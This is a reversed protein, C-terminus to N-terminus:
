LDLQTLTMIILFFFILVPESNYNGFVNSKFALESEVSPHVFFNHFFTVTVLAAARRFSSCYAEHRLFLSCCVASGRSQMVPETLPLMRLDPAPWTARVDPGNARLWQLSEGCWQSGTSIIDDPGTLASPRRAWQRSLIALWPWVKSRVQWSQPWTWGQISYRTFYQPSLLKICQYLKSKM